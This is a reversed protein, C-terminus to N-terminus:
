PLPFSPSPTTNLVLGIDEGVAEGCTRVSYMTALTNTLLGVTTRGTYSITSEAPGILGDM